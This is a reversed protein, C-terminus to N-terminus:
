IPPPRRGLAGMANLVHAATYESSIASPNGNMVVTTVGHAEHLRRFPRTFDVNEAFVIGEPRTTGIRREEWLEDTIDLERAQSYSWIDPLPFARRPM